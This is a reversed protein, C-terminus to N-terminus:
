KLGTVANGLEVLQATTLGIGNITVTFKGSSFNLSWIVDSSSGVPEAPYSVLDGTVGAVHPNSIPTGGAPTLSSCDSVRVSSQRGTGTGTPQAAGAASSVLFLTTYCVPGSSAPVAYTRRFQLYPFGPAPDTLRIAAVDAPAKYGDAPLAIANVPQQEILTTLATPKVAPTSAGSSPGIAAPVTSTASRATNFGLVGVGIAAVVAAGAVLTGSTRIRRRRRGARMARDLDFAAPPIHGMASDLLDKVRTETM